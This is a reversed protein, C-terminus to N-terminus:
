LNVDRIFISVILGWCFVLLSFGPAYLFMYGSVYLFYIKVLYTKDWLPFTPKVNLIFQDDYWYFLFSFWMVIETSASFANSLIWCSKMILVTLLSSILPFKRLRIFPEAWSFGVALMMSLLSLNSEKQMIDPILCLNGNEGDPNSLFSYFQKYKCIFYDQIKFFGLSNVSFSNFSICLNQLTAPYWILVCFDIRGIRM